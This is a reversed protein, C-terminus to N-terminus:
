HSKTIYDYMALAAATAANLSRVSGVRPIEILSDCLSLIDEKLGCSEEGICILPNKNEWKFNYISETKEINNEFGVFSYIKKLEKVEEFSSLYVVDSYNYVGVASVKNYRKKGYYFITRAGLFNATRIVSGFNFDGTIQSMLVAFPLTNVKIIRRTEEVSLGKYEDAVNLEWSYKSDPKNKGCIYEKGCRCKEHWHEDEFKCKEGFYIYKKLRNEPTCFKLEYFIENCHACRKKLNFM